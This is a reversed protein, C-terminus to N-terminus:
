AKVLGKDLAMGMALAVLEAAPERWKTRMVAWHRVAEKVVLRVTASALLVERIPEAVVVVRVVAAKTAEKM